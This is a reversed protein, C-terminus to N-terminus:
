GLVEALEANITKKDGRGVVVVASGKGVDDNGM